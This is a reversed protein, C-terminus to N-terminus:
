AREAGAEAAAFHAPQGLAVITEGDILVDQAIVGTTSIVKGNKILTTAM